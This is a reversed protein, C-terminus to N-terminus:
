EVPPLRRKDLIHAVGLWVPLHCLVILVAWNGFADFMQRIAWAYSWLTVPLALVLSAMAFPLIFLGFRDWM